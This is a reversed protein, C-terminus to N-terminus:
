ALVFIFGGIVMLLLGIMTVLYLVSGILDENSNM